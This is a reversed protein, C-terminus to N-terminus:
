YGIKGKGWNDEVIATMVSNPFIEKARNLYFEAKKTDYVKLYFICYSICINFLEVDTLGAKDIFPEQQLVFYNWNTTTSDAANIYWVAMDLLAKKSHNFFANKVYLRQLSEIIQSNSKSWYFKTYLYDSYLHVIEEDKSSAMTKQMEKEFNDLMLKIRSNETVSTMVLSLATHILIYDEIESSTIAVQLNMIEGCDVPDGRYYDEIIKNIEAKHSAFIMNTMLFLSILFVSVKKM